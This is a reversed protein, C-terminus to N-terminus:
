RRRSSCFFGGFTYDFDKIEGDVQSAFIRGDLGAGDEGYKLALAAYREVPASIEKGAERCLGVLEGTKDFPTANVAAVCNERAAFESTREGRSCTLELTENQGAGADM